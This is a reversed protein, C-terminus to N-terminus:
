LFTEIGDALRLLRPTEEESDDGFAPTKNVDLVLAKGDHMVYDFKGFDFKLRARLAVLEEPTDELYEHHTMTGVKVFPDTSFLRYGYGQDGLFMWGRLAYLGDSTREPMFKEVIIEPDRWVWDPVDRLSPLVPYEEEPLMRALRWSVHRLKMRVKTSFSRRVGWTDAIGFHNGNTKLIVPGPWDSDPGVSLTSILRKSIDLVAANVHAAGAPAEPIVAQKTLDHHLICVSADADYDRGVHVRLGRRKWIRALAGLAYHNDLQPALHSISVLTTSAM